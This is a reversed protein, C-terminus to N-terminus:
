LSNRETKKCQVSKEVCVIYNKDYIKIPVEQGSILIVQVGQENVEIKLLRGQYKIKFRYSNWNPPIFPAISLGNETIKLGAFGNVIAMYCGGMNATHIGDKTNHHTNELDLKASDGFYAYAKEQMNLRSAVISFICTSLSSDHTTIEEYYTYSRKMVELPQM